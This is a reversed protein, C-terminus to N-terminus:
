MRRRAMVEVPNDLAHPGIWIIRERGPVDVSPEPLIAASVIRQVAIGPTM